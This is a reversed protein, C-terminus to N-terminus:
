IASFICSLAPCLNTQCFCFAHTLLFTQTAVRWKLVTLNSCLGGTDITKIVDSFHGSNLYFYALGPTAKIEYSIFTYLLLLIM